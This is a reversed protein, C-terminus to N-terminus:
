FIFNTMTEDNTIRNPHNLSWFFQRMLPLGGLGGIERWIRWKGALVGNEQWYKMKGDFSWKGVSKLSEFIFLFSKNTCGALGVLKGGFVGNERWFKM